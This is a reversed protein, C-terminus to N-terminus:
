AADDTTQTKHFITRNIVLCVDISMDVATSCIRMITSNKGDTAKHCECAKVNMGERAKLLAAQELAMFSHAFADLWLFICINM